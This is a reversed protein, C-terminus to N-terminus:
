NFDMGGVNQDQQQQAEQHDALAPSGVVRMIGRNRRGTPLKTSHLDVKLVCFYQQEALSASVKADGHFLQNEWHIIQEECTFPLKIMQPKGLIEPVDNFEKQISQVVATHAAAQSTNSHNNGSSVLLCEEEPFFEPVAIGVALFTGHMVVCPYICEEFVTPILLDVSVSEWGNHLFTKIMFPFEFDM